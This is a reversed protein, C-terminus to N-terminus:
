NSDFWYLVVGKTLGDQSVSGILWLAGCSVSISGSVLILEGCIENSLASLSDVDRGRPCGFLGWCSQLMNVPDVSGSCAAAGWPPVRMDV